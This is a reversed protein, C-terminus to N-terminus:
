AFALKQNCSLFKNLIKFCSVFLYQQRVLVVWFTTTLPLEESDARTLEPTGWPVTRPGRSKKVWILSWGAM